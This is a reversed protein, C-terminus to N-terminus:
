PSTSVIGTSTVRGTSAGNGTDGATGSDGTGGADTGASSTGDSSGADTGGTTGFGSLLAGFEKGQEKGEEPATAALESAAVPDGKPAGDTTELQITGEDSTAKQLNNAVTLEVSLGFVDAFSALRYPEISHVLQEMARALQPLHTKDELLESSPPDLAALIGAIRTQLEGLRDDSWTESLESNLNKIDRLTELATQAQLGGDVSGVLLIICFTVRAINSM